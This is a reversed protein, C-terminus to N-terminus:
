TISIYWIIVFSVCYNNIIMTLHDYNYSKIITNYTKLINNMSCKIVQTYEKKPLFASIKSFNKVYLTCLHM